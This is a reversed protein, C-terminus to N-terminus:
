PEMQLHPIQFWPLSWTTLKIYIIVPQVARETQELEGVSDTQERPLESAWPISTPSDVSPWAHYTVSTSLVLYCKM